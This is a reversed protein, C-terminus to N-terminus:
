AQLATRADDIDRKLQEALQDIGDFKRESRLFEVFAVQVEEGYLDGEFDILHAELLSQEAHEYFTPRRGINIACPHRAATPGPAGAPMSRARIAMGDGELRPHQRDPFRDDGRQDGHQVVRVEYPRGLM